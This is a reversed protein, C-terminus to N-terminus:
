EPDPRRVYLFCLPYAIVMAGALWAFLEIRWPGGVALCVAVYPLSAVCFSSAMAALHRRAGPGLWFFLSYAPLALTMVLFLSAVARGTAGAGVLLSLSLQPERLDMTSHLLKGNLFMSSVGHDYVAVWHQLSNQVANKVYLQHESGNPGNIGNRVRFVGDGAQQGLMFNGLFIGNSLSVIRAPGGQTQNYPRFWAEISFARSPRIRATLESGSERSALITNRKVSIGAGGEGSAVAAPIQLALGRSRLLGEPVIEGPGAQTFDYGALLGMGAFDSRRVDVGAHLFSVERPALARGYIGIYRIEGHWPRNRAVENAVLLRYDSNWDLELAGALPRLGAAYWIVAAVILGGAQVGISHRRVMRQLADRCTRVPAWRIASIAGLFLSTVNTVLDSIRAHRGEQFLQAIELVTCFLATALLVRALGFRNLTREHAMAILCGLIVFAAFHGAIKPLRDATSVNLAEKARNLFEAPDFSFEFPVLTYAVILSILLLVCWRETAVSSTGVRPLAPNTQAM